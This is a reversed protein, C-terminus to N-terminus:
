VWVDDSHLDEDESNLESDDDPLLKARILNLMNQNKRMIRRLIPDIRSCDAKSINSLMSQIDIDPESWFHVSGVRDCAEFIKRVIKNAKSKSFLSPKTKSKSRSFHRMLDKYILYKMALEADHVMNTASPHIKCDQHTERVLVLGSHISPLDQSDRLHHLVRLRYRQQGDWTM